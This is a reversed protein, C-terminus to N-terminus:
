WVRYEEPVSNAKFCYPCPRGTFGGVGWDPAVITREGCRPCILWLWGPIVKVSPRVEWDPLM